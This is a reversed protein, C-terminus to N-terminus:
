NNATFITLSLYALKKEMISSSLINGIGFGALLIYITIILWDPKVFNKRQNIM